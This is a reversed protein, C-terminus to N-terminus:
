FIFVNSFYFKRYMDISVDTTLPSVIDNNVAQCKYVKGAHGRDLQGLVLENRVRGSSEAQDSEDILVDGMWWTVKPHPWGGSALCTVAISAGEMYPGVMPRTIAVGM